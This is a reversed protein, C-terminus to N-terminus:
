FKYRVGLTGNFYSEEGNIKAGLSGFGFLGQTIKFEGGLMGVFYVETKKVIDKIIEQGGLKYVINDQSDYVRADVGPTFFFFGGDKFYKRFELGAGVNLQTNTQGKQEFSLGKEKYNGMINILFDGSVYPKIFFSPKDGIGFAYGYKLGIDSSQSVYDSEQKYTNFVKMDRNQHVFGMIHSIFLDLENSKALIIRSYLGLQANHSNNSIDQKSKNSVYAYTAYGGLILNSGIFTDYGVSGGYIASSGDASAYGGIVSGWLQMNKDKDIADPEQLSLFVDTKVDGVENEAYRQRSMRKILQSLTVDPTIPNSLLALRNSVLATDALSLAKEATRNSQTKTLNNMDNQVNQVVQEIVEKNGANVGLDTAIESINGLGAVVKEFDNTPESKPLASTLIELIFGEQDQIGKEIFTLLEEATPLKEGFIAMKEDIYKKDDLNNLQLTLAKYEADKKTYEKYGEIQAIKTKIVSSCMANDKDTTCTQIIEDKKALKDNYEAIDVDYKAMQTNFYALDEAYYPDTTLTSLTPQHPKSGAIEFDTVEPTKTPVRKSPFLEKITDIENQLADQKDEIVVNVEANAAQYARDITGGNATKDTIEKNLAKSKRRIDLIKNAYTGVFTEFQEDNLSEFDNKSFYVSSALYNDYVNRVSTVVSADTGEPFDSATITKNTSQYKAVILNYTDDDFEKFDDRSLTPYYPSYVKSNQKITGDAERTAEPSIGPMKLIDSLRDLTNFVEISYANKAGVIDQEIYRKPNNKVNTPNEFTDLLAKEREYKTEFATLDELQRALITYQKIVDQNNYNVADWNNLTTTAAAVLIRKENLETIEAETLTSYRSKLEDVRDKNAALVGLASANETNRKTDLAEKQSQLASLSTQLKNKNDTISGHNAFLGEYSAIRDKYFDLSSIQKQLELERTKLLREEQTAIKQVTLAYQAEQILQLPTKAKAEDTLGLSIFLTKSDASLTPSVTINKELYKESVSTLTGNKFEGGFIHVNSPKICQSESGRACEDDYQDALTIPKESQLIPYAKNGQIPNDPRSMLAINTTDYILSFGTKDPDTPSAKVNIYGFYKSDIAGSVIWGKNIFNGEINLTGGDFLAITGNLQNIFGGKVELSALDRVLVRGESWTDEDVFHVFGSHNTSQKIPNNFADIMEGSSYVKNATSTGNVFHFTNETFAGDDKTVEIKTLSHKNVGQAFQKPGSIYLQGTNNFEYAKIDIELNQAIGVEHNQARNAQAKQPDDNYFEEINLSGDIQYHQVHPFSLSSQMKARFNLKGPTNISIKSGNNVYLKNKFSIPAIDKPSESDTLTISLSSPADYSHKIDFDISGVYPSGMGIALNNINLEKAYQKADEQSLITLNSLPAIANLLYEAQLTQSSLMEYSSGKLSLNYWSGMKDPKDAITLNTYYLLGSNSFGSNTVGNYINGTGAYGSKLSTNISFSFFDTTLYPFRVGIACSGNTGINGCTSDVAGLSSVVPFLALALYASIFGSRIKLM